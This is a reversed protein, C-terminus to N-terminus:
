IDYAVIRGRQDYGVQQGDVYGVWLPLQESNTDEIVEVREMRLIEVGQSEVMECKAVPLMDPVGREYKESTVAELYNAREGDFQIPIKIVQNTEKDYFVARTRGLVPTGYALLNERMSSEYYELAESDYTGSNKFDNIFKNATRATYPIDDNWPERQDIRLRGMIRNREYQFDDAKTNHGQRRLEAIGAPTLYFENRASEILQEDGTVEARALRERAHHSCRPFPKAQCM